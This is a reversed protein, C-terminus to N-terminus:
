GMGDWGMRYHPVPPLGTKKRVIKMTEMAIARAKKAGDKLINDVYKMDKEIEARKKRFPALANAVANGLDEKFEAYGKGKYKKLLEEKSLDSFALYINLLNTIEPKDEGFRIEKGSDTTAKKFKAKVSEGDEFLEVVNGISKSMKVSGDLGLIKQTEKEIKYEPIKFTEGYTSNFKKAIDRAYEINPVQDIGVPIFDSNYILIDSAMLVPYYLLGSNIDKSQDAKKEKYTPIRELHSIPTLTAFIWALETVEPIQSQVFIASKEPDLGIALYDIAINRTNWALEKANHVTTMGHFNAIFYFRELDKENQLEIHRKMAGLYNGIHPKATPRIGSLVRKM